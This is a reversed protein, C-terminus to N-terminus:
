ARVIRELDDVLMTLKAIRKGLNNNPEDDEIGENGREIDILETIRRNLGDALDFQKGSIALNLAKIVADISCSNTLAKVLESNNHKTALILLKDYNDIRLADLVKLISPKAYKAVSKYSSFNYSLANFLALIIENNERLLAIEFINTTVRKDQYLLQYVEDVNQALIAEALSTM